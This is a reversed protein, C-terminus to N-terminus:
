PHTKSDASLTRYAELRTQQEQMGAAVVDWVRRESAESLVQDLMAITLDPRIQVKGEDPDLLGTLLKLTSSKGAGNRGILCLRERPEIQLSAESLIVQDGFALSVEDIRILSTM